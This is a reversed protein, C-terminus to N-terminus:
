GSSNRFLVCLKCLRAEVFDQMECGSHVQIKLLVENFRLLSVLVGHRVRAGIHTVCEPPYFM